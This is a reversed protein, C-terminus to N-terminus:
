YRYVANVKKHNEDPMKEKEMIYISGGKEFVKVAILNLLSINTDTEEVEVNAEQSDKDYDGFIEAGNQVFLSDIRGEIAAKIIMNVDASAKGTGIYESYLDLKEQRTKDFYPQLLDWAEDHLQNINKDDPNGSIHESYLNQYTNVEEYIPFQFDQCCVVLPPRQDDHVMTLIGDNVARFYRKMENLEEADGEGSGHYMGAKMNGQQESRFQLNKQEYDYGVVDQLQSPVEEPTIVETITNRTGEFFKVEDSKLTLLYFLGNGNFLPMLPKLYFETSVYNFEEFLVPVTYKKFTNKSLFIALGDSQHRWFESDNILEAVPQVFEEIEKDSFDHSKLKAKVEKLQTKLKIKDQGELTEEGGRHTPIFISVCFSSNEDALKLVENKTIMAM